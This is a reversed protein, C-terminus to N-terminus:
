SALLCLREFLGLLEGRKENPVHKLFRAIRQEETYACGPCEALLDAITSDLVEALLELTQLSPLTAGREFRSVSEPELSIKEALKAQTLGQKKRQRAINKGLRAPLNNM